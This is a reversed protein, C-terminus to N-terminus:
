RAKRHHRRPTLNRHALGILAARDDAPNSHLTLAVVVIPPRPAIMGVILPRAHIVPMCWIM